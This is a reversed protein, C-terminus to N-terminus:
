TGTLLTEQHRSIASLREAIDRDFFPIVQISHSLPPPLMGACFPWLPAFSNDCSPIVSGSNRGQPALPASQPCGM